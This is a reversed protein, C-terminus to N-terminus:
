NVLQVRKGSITRQAPDGYVTIRGSGSTHAALAQQVRASIDGSGSATLDARQSALQALDAGGSGSVQVNLHNVTGSAQLAGSGSIKGNLGEASVQGLNLRGSGSLSLNANGSHLAAANVDGSGSVKVNLTAVRGSLRTDGSGSKTLTLPGGDLGDVVLRGSGAARIQALQPGSYTVRMPNNTRVNGEVWVRLTGGTHETRIMPLLNGDAEVTLSPTAGSRVEMHLPGSMDLETLSSVARTETAIRGDGPVADKSLATKFWAEGENPTIIIACGSLALAAVCAFTPIPRM